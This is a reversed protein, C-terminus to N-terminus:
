ARECVSEKPAEASEARGCVSEKPAEASEKLGEWLGIGKPSGSIGKPRGM